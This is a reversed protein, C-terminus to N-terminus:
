FFCDFPKLYYGRTSLIMDKEKAIKELKKRKKEPNKIADLEAKL